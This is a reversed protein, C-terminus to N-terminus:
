SFNKRLNKLEEKLIVNISLQENINTQITSTISRLRRKLFTEESTGEGSLCSFENWGIKVEERNKMVVFYNLTVYHVKYCGSWRTIHVYNGELCPKRKKILEGNIKYYWPNNQM